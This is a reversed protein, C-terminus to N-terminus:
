GSPKQSLCSTPVQPVVKALVIHVAKRPYGARPVEFEGSSPSAFVYAAKCIVGVHTSFLLAESSGINLWINQESRKAMALNEECTPCPLHAWLHVYELKERKMNWLM